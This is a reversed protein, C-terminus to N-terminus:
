QMPTPQAQPPPQAYGQPPAQVYQVNQGQVVQGQMAMQVAQQQQALEHKREAEREKKCQKCAWCSVCIIITLVTWFVCCWIAVWMIVVTLVATAGEAVVEGIDEFVAECDEDCVYTNNNYVTSGNEGDYYEWYTANYYSGYEAWYKDSEVVDDFYTTYTCYQDTYYNCENTTITKCGESGDKPCKYYEADCPQLTYDVEETQYYSNYSYDDLVMDECVEAALSRGFRTLALNVQSQQEGVFITAISVVLAIGAINLKNM